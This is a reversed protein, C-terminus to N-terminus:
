RSPRTSPPPAPSADSVESEGPQSLDFSEAKGAADYTVVLRKEDGQMAELPTGVLEWAGLTLVDMGAHVAARGASPENGVEYHYTSQTRGDALKAESEPRGLKAEIQTKETGVKLVSLDAQKEGDLALGVSCASAGHAVLVLLVLRLWAPLRTNLPPQCPVCRAVPPNERDFM